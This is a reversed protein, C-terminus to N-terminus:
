INDVVYNHTKLVLMNFMYILEGAASAIEKERKVMEYKEEQEVESEDM